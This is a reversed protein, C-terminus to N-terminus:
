LFELNESVLSALDGLLHLSQAFLGRGLNQILVAEVEGLNLLILGILHSRVTFADINELIEQGLTL